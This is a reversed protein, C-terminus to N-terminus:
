VKRCFSIPQLRLGHFISVVMQLNLEPTPTSCSIYIGINFIAAVLKNGDASMAVSRVSGNLTAPVSNSIWTNGFDTSTYICGNTAGYIGGAIMTKGNASCAVSNFSINQVNNTVLTAGGNTSVLIFGPLSLSASSIILKNGDASSAVSDYLRGRDINTVWTVGSNTSTVVRGQASAGILKSGDASSALYARDITYVGTLTWTLGRNTSTYISGQWNSGILRSGDASSAVDFWFYASDDNVATFWTGGSNTSILIIGMTGGSAVAELQTGDASSVVSRWRGNILNNQAYSSISNSVWTAGSNTSIYISIQNAAILKTGDASCAVSIWSANTAASTLTWTQALAFNAAM